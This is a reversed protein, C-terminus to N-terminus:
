DPVITAFGNDVAFKIFEECTNPRPINTKMSENYRKVAEQAFMLPSLANAALRLAFPLEKLVRAKMAAVVADANPGSFTENLKMNPNNINVNVKM